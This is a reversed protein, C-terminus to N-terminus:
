ARQSEIFQRQLRIGGDLAVKLPYRGYIQKQRDLMQEVLTLPWKVGDECGHCHM